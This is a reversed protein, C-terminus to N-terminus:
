PVSRVTRAWLQLVPRGLAKSLWEYDDALVAHDVDLFVRVQAKLRDAWAVM